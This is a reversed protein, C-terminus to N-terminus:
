EGVLWEGSVQPTSRLDTSSATATLRNKGRYIQQAV